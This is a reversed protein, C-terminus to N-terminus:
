YFKQLNMGSYLHAVQEQYGNFMLTRIKKAQGLPSERRQSWRPHAVEPNVNAYFGYEAPVAQMWTTQPQQEVLEISVIAKASKFGYKWPVLLRAPGGNQPPLDEGYMGTALLTLPHMAEDIRLAETYPWELVPRRQGIMEKPRLCSTFRAFKAQSLPQCPRIIESLPIGTWPVVMSWGEVCRFRYIREVKCYQSLKTLDITQPKEVLGHVQIEWPSVTFQKALISVAKKDTSFEYYNNYRTAHKKETVPLDPPPYDQKCPSAQLLAPAGFSLGLLGSHQLLARRNLWTDRRTLESSPPIPYDYGM